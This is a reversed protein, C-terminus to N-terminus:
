HTRLAARAAAAIDGGLSPQVIAMKELRYAPCSRSEACKCGELPVEARVNPPLPPVFGCVKGEHVPHQCACTYGALVATLGLSEPRMVLQVLPTGQADLVIGTIVFQPEPQPQLPNTV